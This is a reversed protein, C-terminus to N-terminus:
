IKRVTTNSTPTTIHQNLREAQHQSRVTTNVYELVDMLPHGHSLNYFGELVEKPTTFEFAELLLASIKPTLNQPEVLSHGLSVRMVVTRALNKASKTKPDNLFYRLSGAALTNVILDLVQSRLQQADVYEALYTLCQLSDKEVAQFYYSKMFGQPITHFQHASNRLVEVCDAEVAAGVVTRLYPNKVPYSNNSQAWELLRQTTSPNKSAVVAQFVTTLDMIQAGLATNLAHDLMQGDGMRAVESMALTAYLMKPHNLCTTVAELDTNAICERVHTMWESTTQRM